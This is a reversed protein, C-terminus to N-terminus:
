PFWEEEPRDSPIGGLAETPEPTLVLYREKKRLRTVSRREGRPSFTGGPEDLNEGYKRARKRAREAVERTLMLIRGKDIKITACYHFMGINEM